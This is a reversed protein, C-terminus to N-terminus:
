CGFIKMLMIKAQINVFTKIAFYGYTSKHCNIIQHNFGDLDDDLNDEDENLNDELVDEDLDDEELSLNRM